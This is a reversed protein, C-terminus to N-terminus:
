KGPYFQFKLCVLTKIIVGIFKGLTKGGDGVVKSGPIRM